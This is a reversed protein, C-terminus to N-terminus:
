LKDMTEKLAAILQEKERQQDPTQTLATTETWGALNATEATQSRRLNYLRNKGGTLRSVINLTLNVAEVPKFNGLTRLLYQGALFVSATSDYDNLLDPAAIEKRAAVENDPEFPVFYKNDSREVINYYYLAGEYWKLDYDIVKSDNPVLQTETARSGAWVQKLLTGAFYPFQRSTGPFYYPPRFKLSAKLPKIQSYWLAQQRMEPIGIKIDFDKPDVYEGAKNLNIHSILLINKQKSWYSVDDDTFDENILIAKAKKNVEARKDKKSFDEKSMFAIDASEKIKWAESDYCVWKLIPFLDVLIPLHYGPAGGIYLVTPGPVEEVNWYYTLFALDSLFIRLRPYKLQDRIQMSTEYEFVPTEKTFILSESAFRTFGTASPVKPETKTEKTTSPTKRSRFASGKASPGVRDM